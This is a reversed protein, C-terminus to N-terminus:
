VYYHEKINIFTQRDVCINYYKRVQFDIFCNNLM